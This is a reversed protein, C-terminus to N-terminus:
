RKFNIKSLPSDFCSDINTMKNLTSTQNTANVMQCSYDFTLQMVDCVNDVDYTFLYPNFQIVQNFGRTIEITAGFMPRSLKLSSIVLSDSTRQIEVFTDISERAMVSASSMSVTFVFRYLGYALTHPQVILEAYNITPNNKLLIQTMDRGTNNSVLFISWEKTNSLTSICNIQTLGILNILDSKKFIQPSKYSFTRAVINL